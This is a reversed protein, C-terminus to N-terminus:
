ATMTQPYLESWFQSADTGPIAIMAEIVVEAEDETYWRWNVRHLDVTDRDSEIVIRMRDRSAALLVAEARCGDQYQITMRM